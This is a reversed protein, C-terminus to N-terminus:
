TGPGGTKLGVWGVEQPVALGPLAPVRRTRPTLLARVPSMAGSDQPGRAARRGGRGSGGGQEEEGRERGGGERM